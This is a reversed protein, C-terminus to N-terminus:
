AQSIILLSSLNLPVHMEPSYFVPLGKSRLRTFWVMGVFDLMLNIIFSASTVEALFNDHIFHLDDLVLLDLILLRFEGLAFPFFEKTLEDDLEILDVLHISLNLHHEGFQANEFLPSRDAQNGFLPLGKGHLKDLVFLFQVAKFDVIEEDIAKGKVVVELLPYVELVLVPLELLVHSCRDCLISSVVEVVFLGEFILANNQGLEIVTGALHHGRNFERVEEFRLM